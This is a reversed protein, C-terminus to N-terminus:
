DRANEISHDRWFQKAYDLFLPANKFDNANEYCGWDRFMTKEMEQKSIKTLDIERTDAFLTDPIDPIIFVMKGRLAYKTKGERMILKMTAPSVDSRCCLKYMVLVEKLSDNDLDTVNCNIFECTIDFICKKQADYLDWVVAPKSGSLNFLRAFLEMTNETEGIEKNDASLSNTSLVLLNQGTKDVWKYASYFSGNFSIYSPIESQSLSVPISPDKVTITATSDVPAVLTDKQKVAEDAVKTDNCFSFAFFLFIFLPYKIFQMNDNFIVFTYSNNVALFRILLSLHM